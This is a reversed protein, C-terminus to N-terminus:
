KGKAKEKAARQVEERWLRPDARRFARILPELEELAKRRERERTEAREECIRVQALTLPRVREALAKAITDRQTTSLRNGLRALVPYAIMWFHWRDELNCDRYPVSGLFAIHRQRPKGDIRVSELLIARMRDNEPDVATTIQWRIFM